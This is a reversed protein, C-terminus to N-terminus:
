PHIHFISNDEFTNDEKELMLFLTWFHDSLASVIYYLFKSKNQKPLSKMKSCYRSFWHNLHINLNWNAKFLKVNVIILDDVETVAM